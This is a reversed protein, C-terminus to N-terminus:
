ARKRWRKRGIALAAAATGAALLSIAILVAPDMGTAPPQRMITVSPASSSPSPQTGRPSNAPIVLATVAAVPDVLGGGTGPGAPGMATGEIRQAVQPATLHPYRSRVLAAVGSVFAAAYASGDLGTQYGGPWASAIEEGPATVATRSFLGSFPALENASTVAGVSIVGPYSAPYSPARRQGPIDNGAAAVIVCDHAQAYRVAGRLEPTPGSSVSVNIVEAGLTAADRIGQALTATNGMPGANVKVSLIRARPAVGAFPTGPERAGAVIAAVSTGHGVCDQDSSGALHIATVRGALQPSFDVGSDVVAVTVGAGQTLDWVSSFGLIRQAWPEATLRVAAPSPRCGRSPKPFAPVPTPAVTVLHASLPLPGLAATLLIRIAKIM